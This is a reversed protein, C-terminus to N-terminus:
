RITGFEVTYAARSDGDANPAGVAVGAGFHTFTRDLLAARHPPSALWSHMLEAPTALGGTGAGIIEGASWDHRSGYDVKALRTTLTGGTPTVHSLFDRRIMDSSMGGAARTLKGDLRVPKLGHARREANVLCRTADVAATATARTPVVDAGACRATAGAAHASAPLAVLLTAATAVAATRAFASTTTM